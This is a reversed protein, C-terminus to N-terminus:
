PTVDGPNHTKKQYGSDLRVRTFTKSLWPINDIVEPIRDMANNWNVREVCETNWPQELALHIWTPPAVKSGLPNPADDILIDGAILTKQHTVFVKNRWDEGVNRKVWELKDALAYDSMPPATVIFVHHTQSLLKLAVVGGPVPELDLLLGEAQYIDKVVRDHEKPFDDAVRASQLKPVEIQLKEAAKQAVYENFSNLTNDLDVLIIGSERASPWGIFNPNDKKSEASLADCDVDAWNDMPVYRWAPRPMTYDPTHVKTWTRDALLIDARILQPADTVVTNKIWEKGFETRVWRIQSIAEDNDKPINLFLLVEFGHSLFVEFKQLAARGSGAEAM